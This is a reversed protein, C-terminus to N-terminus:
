CVESYLGKLTCVGRQSDADAVKNELFGSIRGRFAATDAGHCVDKESHCTKTQLIITFALPLWDSLDAARLM